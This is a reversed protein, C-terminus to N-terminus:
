KKASPCLDNLVCAACNPKRAICTYRGHLILLHSYTSWLEQPTIALLDQEIKEATNKNSLGLLGSLRTVHTDVAIGSNIGFANGMIVNATKRGIGALQTLEKMSAPVKGHHHALLQQCCKIINAAKNKYFGTSRIDNELVAPEAHAYDQVSRYKEFLDATVLNVRKDTCQASLITAVLLELPDRYNLECRPTPFQTLLRTIIMQNKEILSPTM